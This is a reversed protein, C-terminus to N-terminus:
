SCQLLKGNREGPSRRLGPILGKDRTNGANAPMSKVVEVGPFGGPFSQHKFLVLHIITTNQTGWKLFNIRCM